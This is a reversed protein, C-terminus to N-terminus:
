LEIDGYKEIYEKLVRNTELPADNIKFKKLVIPTFRKMRAPAFFDDM